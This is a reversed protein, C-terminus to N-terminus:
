KCHPAWSSSVSKVKGNEFEIRATAFPDGGAQYSWVNGETSRPKGITQLVYAESFGPRIFKECGAIVRWDTVVKHDPSSARKAVIPDSTKCGIVLTMAVLVVAIQKM